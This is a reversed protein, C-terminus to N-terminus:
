PRGGCRSRIHTNLQKIAGGPDINGGTGRIHIARITIGTHQIGRIRGLRCQDPDSRQTIGTNHIHGLSEQQRIDPDQGRLASGRERTVTPLDRSGIEHCPHGPTGPIQHIHVVGRIAYGPSRNRRIIDIRVTGPRRDNCVKSGLPNDLPRGRGTRDHPHTRHRPRVQLGSSFIKINGTHLHDRRIIAFIPLKGPRINDFPQM